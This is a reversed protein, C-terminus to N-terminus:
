KKVEKCGSEDLTKGDVDRYLTRDYYCSIESSNLCQVLAACLSPATFAAGSKGYVSVKYPACGALCLVVISAFVFKM